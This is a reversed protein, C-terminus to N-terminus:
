RHSHTRHKRRANAYYETEMYKRITFIKILKPIHVEDMM